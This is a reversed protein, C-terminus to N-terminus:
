TSDSLFHKTFEISDKITNQAPNTSVDKYPSYSKFKTGSGTYYQTTM